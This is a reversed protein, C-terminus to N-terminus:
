EWESSNNHTIYFCTRLGHKMPLRFHNPRTVWTKCAGNVRARVPTGDANRATKHYFEQRYEATEADHKTIM